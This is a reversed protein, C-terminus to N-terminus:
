VFTPVLSDARVSAAAGTDGSVAASNWALGSTRSAASSVLAVSGGLGKGAVTGFVDAGDNSRELWGAPLAPPTLQDFTETLGSPNERAELQELALHTRPPRPM